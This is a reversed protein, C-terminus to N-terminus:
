EYFVMTVMLPSNYGVSTGNLSMVRLEFDHAGADVNLVAITSMPVWQSNYTLGMGYAVNTQPTPHALTDNDFFAAYVAGGGTSATAHANAMLVVTAARSLTVSRSMIATYTMSTIANNQAGADFYVESAAQNVATALADFNSNMEDASIVDGAAFTHPVSTDQSWAMTSLLLFLSLVVTRPRM